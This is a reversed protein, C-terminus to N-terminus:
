EKRIENLKRTMVQNFIEKTLEKAPLKLYKQYDEESLIEQQLKNLSKIIKWEKYTETNDWQLYENNMQMSYFYINVKYVIEVSHFIDKM